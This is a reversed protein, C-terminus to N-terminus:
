REHAAPSAIMQDRLMSLTDLNFKTVPSEEAVLLLAALEPSDNELPGQQDRLHRLADRVVDDADTYGGSEVRSQVFTELDKTLNIKM